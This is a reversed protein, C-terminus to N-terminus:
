LHRTFDQTSLLEFRGASPSIRVSRIQIVVITLAFSLYFDSVDIIDSDAQQVMEYLKVVFGSAVTDDTEEDPPPPPAARQKRLMSKM